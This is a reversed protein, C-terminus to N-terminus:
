VGDCAGSHPWKMPCFSYCCLNRCSIRTILSKSNTICESTKTVLTMIGSWLIHCNRPAVLNCGEPYYKKMSSDLSDSNLPSIWFAYGLGEREQLFQLLFTKSTKNKLVITPKNPLDMVYMSLSKVSVTASSEITVARTWHSPLSLSIHMNVYVKARTELSIHIKFWHLM